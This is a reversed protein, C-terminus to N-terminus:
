LCSTKRKTTLGVEGNLVETSVMTFFTKKLLLFLGVQMRNLLFKKQTPRRKLLEKPSIQRRLLRNQFPSQGTLGQSALTLLNVKSSQHRSRFKKWRRCCNVPSETLSFPIGLKQLNFPELFPI